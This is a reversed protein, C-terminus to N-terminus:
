CIPRGEAEGFHDYHYRAFGSLTNLNYGQENKKRNWRRADKDRRTQWQDYDRRVDPNLQMYRSPEFFCPAEPVDYTLRLAPAPPPVEVLPAPVNQPISRVIIQGIAPPPNFVPPNLSISSACCASCNSGNTELDPAPTFDPTTIAPLSLAPLNGLNGLNIGPGFGFVDNLGDVAEKATEEAQRIPRLRRLLPYVLLILALIFGVVAITDRETQTM